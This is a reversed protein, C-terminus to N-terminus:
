KWASKKCMFIATIAALRSLILLGYISEDILNNYELYAKLNEYVNLNEDM